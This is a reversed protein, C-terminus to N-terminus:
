RRRRGGAAQRKGGAVTQAKEIEYRLGSKVDVEIHQRLRWLMPILVIGSGRLRPCHTEAIMRANADGM